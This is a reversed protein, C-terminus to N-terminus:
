RLGTDQDNGALPNAPVPVSLTAAPVSAAPASAAAIAERSGHFAQVFQRPQPISFLRSQNSKCEIAVGGPRLSIEEIDRLPIQEYQGLAPFHCLLIRRDTLVAQCVMVRIFDIIRLIVFFAGLIYIVDLLLAQHAGHLREALLGAASFILLILLTLLLHGAFRYWRSKGQYLIKEGPLLDFSTAAM